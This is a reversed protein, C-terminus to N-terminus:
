ILLFVKPYVFSASKIKPLFLRFSMKTKNLSFIKHLLVNWTLTFYISKWIFFNCLKNRFDNKMMQKVESREGQQATPSQLRIKTRIWHHQIYYAIGRAYDVHEVPVYSLPYSLLDPRKIGTSFEAEM